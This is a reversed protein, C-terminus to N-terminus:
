DSFVFQVYIVDIIKKQEFGPKPSKELVPVHDSKRGKVVSALVNYELSRSILNSLALESSAKCLSYLRRFNIIVSSSTRLATSGKFFDLFLIICKLPITEHELM